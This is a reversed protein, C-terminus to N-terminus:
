LGSLLWRDGAKELITRGTFGLKALGPPNAYTVTAHGDRVDVHLIRANRIATRDASGLLGGLM